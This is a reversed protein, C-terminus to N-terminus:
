NSNWYGIFVSDNHMINCYGKVCKPSNEECEEENIMGRKSRRERLIWGYIWMLMWDNVYNCKVNSIGYERRVLWKKM